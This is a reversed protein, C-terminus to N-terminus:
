SSSDCRHNLDMRLLVCQVRAHVADHECPHHRGQEREHTYKEDIETEHTTNFVTRRGDERQEEQSRGGPNPPTMKAHRPANNKMRVTSDFKHTGNPAHDQRRVVDYQDLGVIM